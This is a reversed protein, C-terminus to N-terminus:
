GAPNAVAFDEDHVLTWSASLVGGGDDPRDELGQLVVPTDSRIYDYTLRVELSGNSPSFLRLAVHRTNNYLQGNDVADQLNNQLNPDGSIDLTVDYELAVSRAWVAAGSTPSTLVVPVNQFLLGHVGPTGQASDLAYANGSGVLEIPM